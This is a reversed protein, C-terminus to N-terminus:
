ERLKASTVVFPLPSINMLELQDSTLFYGSVFIKLDHKSYESPLNCGSWVVASATTVLMSGALTGGSMQVTVPADVVKGGKRLGKYLSDYCHSPDINETDKKCSIITLFFLLSLSLQRM